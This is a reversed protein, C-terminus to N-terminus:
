EAHDAGDLAARCMKEVLSGLDAHGIWKDLDFKGIAEALMRVREVVARDADREARLDHFNQMVLTVGDTLYVEDLPEGFDRNVSVRLHENEARLWEVEATLAPLAAAIIKKAYDAEYVDHDGVWSADFHDAAYERLIRCVVEVAEDGVGEGATSM